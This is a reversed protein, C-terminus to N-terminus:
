PPGREITEGPTLDRGALGPHDPPVRTARFVANSRGMTDAPPPDDWALLTTGVVPSVYRWVVVGDTTVERFTGIPGDCVLTNGNALRQAGSINKAYMPDEAGPDYSWVRADASAERPDGYGDATVPFRLEDVTSRNGGPRRVGNDFVLVHGAGPLGAGIWQADHQGFLQQDGAASLNAPNGWRYLLDGAPGAAEATTTAHDIVWIEHLGHVSLLIEDRDADYDIANVHSWDPAMGGALDVDVRGPRAAPDGYSGLSPDRPQVLHDALHWAWVIEGGDAGVPRVEIVHDLWLGAPGLRAPDWGLAAAETATFREWAVILVNGDPLREVDHHASHDDNAYRYSWAVDGSWDLREVVGGAGGAQFTPNEVRGLAGTHLLSGDDLLYVSAAPRYASEWSHVLRGDLDVLYTTTAGM